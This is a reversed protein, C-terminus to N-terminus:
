SRPTISHCPSVAAMPVVCRAARLRASSGVSVIRMRPDRDVAGFAHFQRVRSEVGAKERMARMAADGLSEVPGVFTGPLALKGAGPAETRKALLVWLSGERVALAVVDVTVAIPPFASPDYDIFDRAPM